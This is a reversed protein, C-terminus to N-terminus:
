SAVPCLPALEVTLPTVTVRDAETFAFAGISAPPPDFVQRTAQVDDLTANQVKPAALCAGTMARTVVLAAEDANLLRGDKLTAAAGGGFFAEDVAGSKGLSATIRTRVDSGLGGSNAVFTAFTEGGRVVLQTGAGFQLPVSLGDRDVHEFTPNNVAILEGDPSLTATVLVHRPNTDGSVAALITGDDFTRLGIATYNAAPIQVSTEWEVMGDADLRTIRMPQADLALYGDGAPIIRAGGRNGQAIVNFDEDVRTSDNFLLGGDPMPVAEALFIKDPTMVARDLAGDATLRVIRAPGFGSQTIVVIRGKADEVVGKVEEVGGLQVGWVVELQANLKFVGGGAVVVGGDATAAARARWGATAGTLSLTQSEDKGGGGGGSGGGSNSDSASGCASLILAAALSILLPSHRM